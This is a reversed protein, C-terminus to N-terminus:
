SGHIKQSPIISLVPAAPEEAVEAAAKEEAEQALKRAERDRRNVEKKVEREIEAEVLFKTIAPVSLAVPRSNRLALIAQLVDDTDMMATGCIEKIVAMKGRSDLQAAALVALDGVSEPDTM